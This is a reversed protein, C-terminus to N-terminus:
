GFLFLIVVFLFVVRCMLVRGWKVCSLCWSICWLLFWCLLILCGILMVIGIMGVLFKMSGVGLVSSCVLGLFIVFSCFCFFFWWRWRWSVVWGFFLKWFMELWSMKLMKVWVFLLRCVMVSLIFLVILCCFVWCLVLLSGSGVCRVCCYWKVWVVKLKLVFCWWCNRKVWCWLFGLFFVLCCCCLGRVVFRWVWVVKM